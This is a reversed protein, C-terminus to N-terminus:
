KVEKMYLASTSLTGYTSFYLVFCGECECPLFSPLHSVCLLHFSHFAISLFDQLVYCVPVSFVHLIFHVLSPSLNLLQLKFHVVSSPCFCLLVTAVLFFIKPVLYSPNLQSIVSVHFTLLPSVCLHFSKFHLSLLECVVSWMVFYLSIPWSLPVILYCIFDYHFVTVGIFFVSLPMLMTINSCV